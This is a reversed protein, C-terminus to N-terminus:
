NVKIEMHQNLVAEEKKPLKITLIGNKYEAKINERDVIEPITFARDFSDNGFEKRSYNIEEKSDEMSASIKLVDKEMNLNFDKKTYGPVALQIEFAKETDIVNAAPCNCNRNEGNNERMNNMMANLVPNNHWRVLTM